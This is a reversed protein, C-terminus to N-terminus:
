SVGFFRKLKFDATLPPLGEPWGIDTFEIAFKGPRSPNAMLRIPQATEPLDEQMLYDKFLDSLTDVTIIIYREKM